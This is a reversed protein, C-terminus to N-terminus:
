SPVFWQPEYRGGSGPTLRLIGHGSGLWVTGDHAVSISNWVVRFWCHYLEQQRGDVELTSVFEGAAFLFREGEQIVVHPAVHLDTVTRVTWQSGDREVKALSAYSFMLHAYSQVVFIGKSTKSLLVTNRDSVRQAKGNPPVWFLGGGMEGWNAAVLWGDKVALQHIPYWDKYVKYFAAVGPPMQVLKQKIQADVSARWESYREVVLRDDVIAVHFDEGEGKMDSIDAEDVARFGPPTDAATKHPAGPVQALFVAVLLAAFVDNQRRPTM